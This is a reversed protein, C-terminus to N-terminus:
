QKQISDVNKQHASIEKVLVSAFVCTFSITLRVERNIVPSGRDVLDSSPSRNALLIGSLLTHTEIKAMKYKTIFFDSTDRNGPIGNSRKLVLSLSATLLQLFKRM